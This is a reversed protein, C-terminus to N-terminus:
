NDAFLGAPLGPSHAPLPAPLARFPTRRSCHRRGRLQTGGKLASPHGAPPPARASQDNTTPITPAKRRRVVLGTGSESSSRGIRRGGRIPPTTPPPPTTPLPPTSPPHRHDAHRTPRPERHGPCTRGTPRRLEAEARPPRPPRRHEAPCAPRRHDARPTTPTRAPARRRTDAEDRGRREPGGVGGGTWAVIRHHPRARGCAEAGHGRARGRCTLAGPLFAVM